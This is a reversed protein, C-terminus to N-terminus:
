ISVFDHWEYGNPLESRGAFELHLIRRHNQNGLQGCLSNHAVLPRILLVDGKRCLIRQASAEDIDMAKGTLHSGPIVSMPGNEDTVDDLHIRAILMSELISQSAEVHPVGAKVTPHHFEGSPRRNDRVAVTLDKHWPLSWTRVPPKDFYLARVLGAQPGLTGTLLTLLPQRRWVDATRPWLTLLNRAGVVAGESQIVAAKPSSLGQCLEAQLQEIEGAQFVAAIVAFGNGDIKRLIDSVSFISSEM